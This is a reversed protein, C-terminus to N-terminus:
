SNWCMKVFIFDLFIFNEGDNYYGYTCFEFFFEFFEDFIIKLRNTSNPALAYKKLKQRSISDNFYWWMELSFCIMIQWDLMKAGDCQGNKKWIANLSIMQLGLWIRCVVNSLLVCALAARRIYSSTTWHTSNPVFAHEYETHWHRQTNSTWVNENPICAMTRNCADNPQGYIDLPLPWQANEIHKHEFTTATIRNCKHIPVNQVM